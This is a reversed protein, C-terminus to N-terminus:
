NTNLSKSSLTALIFTSFIAHNRYRLFKYKYPYNYVTEILRLAEQKTLKPPLKKELKPIEIDDAPNNQM